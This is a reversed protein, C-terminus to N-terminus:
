FTKLEKFSIFVQKQKSSDTSGLFEEQIEPQLKQLLIKTKNLREPDNTFDLMCLTLHLMSPDVFLSESFPHDM